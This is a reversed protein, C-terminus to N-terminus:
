YQLFKWKIIKNFNIGYINLFRIIIEQNKL